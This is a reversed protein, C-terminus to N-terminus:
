ATLCRRLEQIRDICENVVIHCSDIVMDLVFQLRVNGKDLLNPFVNHPCAALPQPRHSQKQPSMGQPILARCVDVKSGYDLEDM